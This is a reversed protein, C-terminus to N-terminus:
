ANSGRVNTHLALSKRVSSSPQSIQGAVIPGTQEHVIKTAEQRAYVRITNENIQQVDVANKDHILNLVLSQRGSASAAIGSAPLAFQGKNWAQITPAGLFRMARTNLVGEGPTLLAPVTDKNGYGPVIGGTAFKLAGLLQAFAVTSGLAIDAPAANAGFSALSAFAAAPAWAAAVSSALAISQAAAAAGATAGIIKTILLQIGLKIFGSILESLAQRAVDKLAAGLDEGYALARGLANAAGDAITNFANTWTQVIGVSLGKFNKIFDGFVSTFVDAKSFKGMEININALEVRLKALQTDYQKETIIGQARAKNLALIATTLKEVQGINQQYLQEVAQQLQKQKELDTLLKNLQQQEKDNLTIGKNRLNDLVKQIETAVTLAVGYKGLLDVQNQLGHTYEALPNIADIYQKNAENLAQVAQGHTIAGDKELTAIAQQKAIYDRLPGNFQEYTKKLEAQYQAHQVTFSILQKLKDKEQDTLAIHNKQLELIAKDYDSQIKLADSYTGVVAAQDEYRQFLADVAQKHREIEGTVTAIKSHLADLNQPFARAVQSNLLDLQQQLSNTTNAGGEFINQHTKLQNFDDIFGKMQERAQKANDKLVALANENQQGRLHANLVEIQTNLDKGAAVSTTLEQNLAKVQTPDTIVLNKQTKDILGGSAPDFERKLNTTTATLQNKYADTLADVQAKARQTFVIEDQIAKVKANQLALGQLGKENALANADAIQKQANIEKLAAQANQIEINKPVNPNDELIRAVNSISFIGEPKIKLIKDGILIANTEANREEVSLAKFADALKEVGNIMQGIVGVLALAGFVPFAAQLVPGLGLTTTLFRGAARTNGTLGKELTNLAASSAIFNGTVQGTGRGLQNVGQNFNNAGTTAARAAVNFSSLTTISAAIATNLNGYSTVLKDVKQSADLAAAGMKATTNSLRTTSSSAASLQQSLGQVGSNQIAQLAQTLAQVAGDATQAASGIAAVNKAISPDVGDQIVFVIPDPM